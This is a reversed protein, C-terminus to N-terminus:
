RGPVHRSDQKMRFVQPSQALMRTAEQNALLAAQQRTRAYESEGYSAFIGAYYTAKERLFADLFSDVTDGVATYLSPRKQGIIKIHAGSLPDYRWDDFFLVAVGGDLGLRWSNRDIPWDYTNLATNQRLIQSIYAFNAPVSFSFTTAAETLSEDEELDILWGANRADKAAMNIFSMLQAPSIEANGVDHIRLAIEASVDSVLAM